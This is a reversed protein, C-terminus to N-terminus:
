EHEKGWQILDWFDQMEEWNGESAVGYIGGPGFPIMELEVTRHNPITEVPSDDIWLSGRDNDEERVISNIRMEVLRHGRKGKVRVFIPVGIEIAGESMFIAGCNACKGSEVPAGCNPCNKETLEM